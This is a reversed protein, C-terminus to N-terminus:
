YIDNFDIPFVHNFKIELIQFFHSILHYNIMSRLSVKCLQRDDHPSFHFKIM